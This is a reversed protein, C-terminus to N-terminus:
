CCTCDQPTMAVQLHFDEGANPAQQHSRSQLCPRVEHLGRCLGKGWAGEPPMSIGWIAVKVDAEQGVREQYATRRAINIIYMGEQGHIAPRVSYAFLASGQRQLTWGLSSWVCTMQM